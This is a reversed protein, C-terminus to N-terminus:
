NACSGSPNYDMFMGSPNHQWIWAHIEYFPSLGYRNPMPILKLPRGFLTPGTTNGATAWAGQFVIYEAAVLRPKANPLKQYVLAEPKTPDLVADGVFLGNVYHIGMVGLEPNAICAIGAADLFANPGYGAAKATALDHFPATAARATSLDEAGANAPSPAALLVVAM